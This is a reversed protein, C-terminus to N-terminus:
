YLNERCIRLADSDREELMHYYRLERPIVKSPILKIVSLMAEHCTQPNRGAELTERVEKDLTAREEDTLGKFFRAVRENMFEEATM